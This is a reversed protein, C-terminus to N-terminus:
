LATFIGAYTMIHWLIINFLVFVLSLVHFHSRSNSSSSALRTLCRPQIQPDASGAVTARLELGAGHEPHVKLQSDVQQCFSVEVVSYQVAAIESLYQQASLQPSFDLFSKLRGFKPITVPRSVLRACIFSGDPTGVVPWSRPVRLKVVTRNENAQRKPQAAKADRLLAAM